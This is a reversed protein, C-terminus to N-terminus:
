PLKDQNLSSLSNRIIYNAIRNSAGIKGLMKRLRAIESIQTESDLIENLKLSLNKVTCDGQILEPVIDRGSILNPLGIRNIKVVAKAVAYNFAGTKYAIVQKTGLLSAELTATGSTVIAAVSTGLIERTKGFEVKFGAETALSYDSIKRGPAGAIVFDLEKFEMGLSVFLPLMKKLEQIRSGPLLAIQHPRKEFKLEEFTDLIPHGLSQSNVGGKKLIEDEFPLAPFVANYDRRLAKIRSGKWAWIQPCIVQYTNFGAAKSRKAIRMNFGPFDICVVADPNFVEIEKWCKKLNKRIAGLNKIVELFGMFALESYYKSINVGVSAMEKGGWGRIEADTQSLIQRAIQGGYVDGSAEGAIIFIKHKKTQM